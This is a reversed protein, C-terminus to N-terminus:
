EERFSGEMPAQTRRDIRKERRKRWASTEVTEFAEFAELAKEEDQHKLGEVLANRLMKQATANRARGSSGSVAAYSNHNRVTGGASRSRIKKKKQDSMKGSEVPTSAQRRPAKQTGMPKNASSGSRRSSETSKKRRRRVKGAQLSEHGAEFSKSRNASTTVTSKRAKRPGPGSKTRSPHPNPSRLSPKPSKNRESSSARPSVVGTASSRREPTTSARRETSGRRKKNTAPAIQGSRSNSRSRHGASVEGEPSKTRMLHERIGKKRMPSIPSSLFNALSNHFAGLMTAEGATDAISGVVSLDHTRSARSEVSASRVRRGKSKGPEQKKDRGRPPAASKPRGKGKSEPESEGQNRAVVLKSFDPIIYSAMDLFGKKKREELEAEVDSAKTDTDNDHNKHLIHTLEDQVASMRKSRGLLTEIDEMTQICEDARAAVMKEVQTRGIAGANMGGAFSNNFATVMDTIKSRDYNSSPTFAHPSRKLNNSSSSDRKTNSTSTANQEEKARSTSRGRRTRGRTASGDMRRKEKHTTSKKKNHHHKKTDGGEKHKRTSASKSKRARSASRSKKEKVARTEKEPTVEQNDNDNKDDEDEDNKGEERLKADAVAKEVNTRANDDVLLIDSSDDTRNDDKDVLVEDNNQKDDKRNIESTAIAPASEFQDALNTYSREHGPAAEEHNENHNAVESKLLLHGMFDSLSTSQVQDKRSLSASRVSKNVNDLSSHFAEIKQQSSMMSEAHHSRTEDLSKRRRRRTKKPEEHDPSKHSKQHDTKQQQQQNLQEEQELEKELEEEVKKKHVTSSISEISNRRKPKRKTESEEEKKMIGALSSRRPQEQEEEEIKKKHITSSISEISNRRKPRKKAEAEDKKMVGALSKRRRVPRKIRATKGKEKNTGTKIKTKQTEAKLQKKKNKPSKSQRTTEQTTDAKVEQEEETSELTSRRKLISRGISPSKMPSVLPFNDKIDSPIPQKKILGDNTHTSYDMTSMSDLSFRRRHVGRNHSSAESVFTLASINDCAWVHFSRDDDRGSSGNSRQKASSPSVSQVISTAASTDELSPTTTDISPGINTDMSPAVGTSLSNCSNIRRLGRLRLDRRSGGAAALALAAATANAIDKRQRKVIGSDNKKHGAAADNEIEGSSTIIGTTYSELESSSNAPAPAPTTSAVATTSAAATTSAVAVATSQVSKDGVESCVSLAPMQVSSEGAFSEIAASEAAFSEAAFSEAASTAMSKGATTESAQSLFKLSTTYKQQQIRGDPGVVAGEEAASANTNSSKDSCISLHPLKDNDHSSNNEDNDNDDGGDTSAAAFSEQAFSTYSKNGATETSNKTGISLASPLQQISEAAFTAFSDDLVGSHMSLTPMEAFDASASSVAAQKRKKEEDAMLSAMFLSLSQSM